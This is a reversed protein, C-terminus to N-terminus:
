RFEAVIRPRIAAEAEGLGHEIPAEVLVLRVALGSASVARQELIGWLRAQGSETLAM